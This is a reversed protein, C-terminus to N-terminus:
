ENIKDKIENYTKKGVKEIKEIKDKVEPTKYLTWAGFIAFFMVIIFGILRFM